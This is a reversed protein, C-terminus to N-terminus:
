PTEKAPPSPQSREPRTVSLLPLGLDGLARLVGHLAAQDAIPGEAVTTGDACATLTMGAFRTAWRPTLHGQFRIEYRDAQHKIDPDPTTM